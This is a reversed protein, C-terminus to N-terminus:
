ELCCRREKFFKCPMVIDRTVLMKILGCYFYQVQREGNKHFFLFRCVARLVFLGLCLCVFVRVCVYMCVCVCARLCVRLCMRVRVRVESEGVM